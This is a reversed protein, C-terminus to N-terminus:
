LFVPSPPGCFGALFALRKFYPSMTNGGARRFGFRRYFPELPHQCTLYVMGREPLLLARIITSAIGQRRWAPHVAISALERSGDSHPKIQGIGIVRGHDADAVLFRRWDLGFPNIRAARVLTIIARRDSATAHRITIGGVDQQQM